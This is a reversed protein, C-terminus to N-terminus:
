STPTIGRVRIGGGGSERRVLGMLREERKYLTNLDAGKWIRTGITYEQAGGEIAEIATQVSELQEAYTKM